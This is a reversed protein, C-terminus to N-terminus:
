REDGESADEEEEEEEIASAKTVQQKIKLVALNWTLGAATAGM